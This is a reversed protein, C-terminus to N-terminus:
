RLELAKFFVTQFASVVVVHGPPTHTHGHAVQQVMAMGLEGKIAKLGLTGDTGTGSLIICIAKDKQDAALTKIETTLRDLEDFLALRYGLTDLKVSLSKLM